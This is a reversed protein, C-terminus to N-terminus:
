DGLKKLKDLFDKHWGDANSDVGIDEHDKEAGQSVDPPDGSKKVWGKVKKCYDDWWGPNNWNELQLQIHLLEHYFVAKNERWSSYELILDYRIKFKIEFELKGNKYSWSSHEETEGKVRSGSKRPTNGWGDWKVKIKVPTGNCDHEITKEGSAILDLADNITHVSNALNKHKIINALERTYTNKLYTDLSSEISISSEVDSEDTSGTDPLSTYIKNTVTGYGTVKYRVTITKTSNAPIKVKYKVYSNLDNDGVIESSVKNGNAKVPPEFKANDPILDYLTIEVEHDEKNEIKITYELYDGPGCKTVNATKSISINPAVTTETGEKLKYDYPGATGGPIRFRPVKIKIGKNKIVGGKPSSVIKVKFTIKIYHNDPFNKIRIQLNGGSTDAKYNNKSFASSNGQKDVKEVTVSGEVLETGEPIADQIEVKGPNTKGPKKIYVTFTLEDGIKASNTNVAKEIIYYGIRQSVSIVSLFSTGLFNFSVVESLGNNEGLPYGGFDFAQIQWAYEKGVEFERASLPYQYFTTRINDTEFWAPNTQIAIEANQGERVEVIKIAFVANMGQSITQMWSFTPSQIQIKDGDAPSIITPPPIQAVSHQICTNGIEQNSGALKVYICIEYYGSPLSGTRLVSEQYRPDSSSYSVEPNLEYFNLSNFVTLGPNLMFGITSATAITGANEETIAAQLHVQLPQTELNTCTLNWLNEIHLQNVPPTQIEVL